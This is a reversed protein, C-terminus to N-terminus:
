ATAEPRTTGVPFLWRVAPPPAGPPADCSVAFVAGHARTQHVVHELGDLADVFREPETCAVIRARTLRAIGNGLKKLVAEKATWGRTFALPDDDSAAGLLELQADDLVRAVLEQEQAQVPEVDVGLPTRAVAAAALATDAHASHSLSWHWGGSPLPVDDASKELAGLRAHSARASEALAVRAVARLAAVREPGRPATLPEVRLAVVVTAPANV